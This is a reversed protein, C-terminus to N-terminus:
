YSITGTSTWSDIYTFGTPSAADVVVAACGQLVLSGTAGEFRGTGGTITFTNGYPTFGTQCTLTAPIFGTLSSTIADGNAAIETVDNTGSGTSVDLVSTKGLHAGRGTGTASFAGTAPDYPGTASSASSYPRDTGRKAATAPTAFGFVAVAM